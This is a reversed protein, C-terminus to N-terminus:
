STRRPWWSTTPGTGYVSAGPQAASVPGPQAPASRRATAARRPARKRALDRRVQVLDRGLTGALKLGIGTGVLAAAWPVLSSGAASLVAGVLPAYRLELHELLKPAALFLALTLLGMGLVRGGLYSLLRPRKSAVIVAAAALLGALTAGTRAILQARAQAARLRDSVAATARVPAQPAKALAAATKPHTAALSTAVVDRVVTTAQAPSSSNAAKAVADQVAPKGLEALVVKRAAPRSAAPLAATLAQATVARGQPDSVMAAVVRGPRAPDLVTHVAVNSATAVGLLTLALAGIRRGIAYRM